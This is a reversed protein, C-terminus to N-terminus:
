EWEIILLSVAQRPLSFTLALTGNTAHAPGPEELLALRSASELAAYQERTPAIPSGMRKWAAFANSHDDDIRYHAVTAQRAAPPCASWRSIRGRGRPRARRRRSLALGARLAPEARHEGPGRRRAGRARRRPPDRRAPGRRLEAGGAAAAWGRSFMRFVNLVPLDIGNTALARFGPSIPSTRSSSRGPSCAKSTSAMGRRGARAPPRLERRHLELVDHRQPLRVAAGSLRRLRGPRVRRDRDADAQAGPHRRDDSATTSPRSSRPSAWGSTATSSGRHARPTSPSSIRAARGAQRRPMTGRPLAAPVDSPGGAPRRRDASARPPCPGACATSRTITFGSSNRPRARGTASTPSTGSRGTGPSAGRGATASSATGSGSTSWSAGMERLGQASLGLRHLPRRASAAAAVPAPVAGAQTSLAQPMFGIEVYPRVGRELYTDFIRDMITWDYIPRGRADETYVNTSGWKLAPTGDGSTLLNHARFYVSRPALAGLTVLLERGDKMTAYNPEDAGFFRWIPVLAGQTQGADVRITVPFAAALSFLVAAIM